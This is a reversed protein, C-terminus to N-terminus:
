NEDESINKTEKLPDETGLTIEKSPIQKGFRENSTYSFIEELLTFTTVRGMIINRFKHFLSVHLMNTFYYALMLHTPCYVISLEEKDVQYKIFLIGPILIGRNEQALTGGM